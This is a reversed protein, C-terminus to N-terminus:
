ERLFDEMEKGVWRWESWGERTRQKGWGHLHGVPSSWSGGGRDGLSEGEAREGPRDEEDQGRGEDEEASGPEEAVLWGHFLGLLLHPPDQMGGRQHEEEQDLPEGGHLVRLAVEQPVAPPPAVGPRRGLPGGWPPDGGHDDEDQNQHLVLRGEKLHPKSSLTYIDIYIYIYM